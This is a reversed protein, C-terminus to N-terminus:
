DCFPAAMSAYRGLREMAVYDQRVRLRLVIDEVSKCFMGRYRKAETAIWVEGSYSKLFEGTYWECAKAMIKVREDPDATARGKRYLKEFIEADEEM